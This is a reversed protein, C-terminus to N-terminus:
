LRGSKRTCISLPKCVMPKYHNEGKPLIDGVYGSKCCWVTTKWLSRKTWIVNTTVFQDLLKMICWKWGKQKQTLTFEKLMLILILLQFDFCLRQCSWVLRGLRWELRWSFRWWFWKCCCFWYKKVNANNAGHTGNPKKLFWYNRVTSISAWQYVVLFKQWYDNGGFELINLQNSGHLIKLKVLSMWIWHWKSALIDRADDSVGYNYAMSHDPAQMNGKDGNTREPWGLNLIMNQWRSELAYLFLQNTSSSNIYLGDSTKMM